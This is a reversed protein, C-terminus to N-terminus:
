RPYSGTVDLPARKWSDSCLTERVQAFANLLFCAGLFLLDKHGQDNGFQPEGRSFKWPIFVPQEGWASIGSLLDWSHRSPVSCLNGEAHGQVAATHPDRQLTSLLDKQVGQELILQVLLETFLALHGWPFTLIVLCRCNSSKIWIFVSQRGEFGEGQLHVVTQCQPLCQRRQSWVATPSTLCPHKGAQIIWFSKSNVNM